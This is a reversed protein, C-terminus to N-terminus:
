KHAKAHSPAAVGAFPNAASPRPDLMNLYKNADVLLLNQFASPLKRYAALLQTELPDLRDVGDFYYMPLGAREEMARAAKEGFSRHGSVLQRVYTEDIKKDAAESQHKAVFGAAGGAADVLERLRAARYLQINM